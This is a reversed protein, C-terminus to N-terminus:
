LDSASVTLGIDQRFITGDGAIGRLQVVWAGIGLDAPATYGGTVADLTLAMDDRAHTPRGITASLTDLRVPTAALHQVSIQVSGDAYSVGMKLGLAEQALRDDDFTQSAVYSNNVVLGPFTSVASFAMFLNVGIIIGFGVIMIALFKRGTLEKPAAPTRTM